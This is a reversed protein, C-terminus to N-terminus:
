IVISKEDWGRRTVICIDVHSSLCAGERFGCLDIKCGASTIFQGSEVILLVAMQFRRQAGPSNSPAIVGLVSSFLAISSPPPPVPDLAHALLQVLLLLLATIDHM